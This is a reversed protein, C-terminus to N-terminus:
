LRFLTVTMVSSPCRQFTDGPSLPVETLSRRIPPGPPLREQSTKIDNISLRASAGHAPHIIRQNLDPKRILFVFPVGMRLFVFEEKHDLATEHDIKLPLGHSQRGFLGERNGFAHHM